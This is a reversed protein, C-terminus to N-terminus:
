GYTRATLYREYPALVTTSQPLDRFQINQILLEFKWQGKSGDAKRMPLWVCGDAPCRDYVRAYAPVSVTYANISAARTVESLKIFYWAHTCSDSAYLDEVTEVVPRTDTSSQAILLPDAVTASPADAEDWSTKVKAVLEKLRLLM